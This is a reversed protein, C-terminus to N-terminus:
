TAELAESSEARIVADIEFWTNRGLARIGTIEYDKTGHRIRFQADVRSTDSSYRVTFRASLQAGLQQARMSEGTSVDHKAAWVTAFPAYSRVEENFSNYSVTPILLTIRQDLKGATIKESM